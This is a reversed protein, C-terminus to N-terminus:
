LPIVLPYGFKKPYFHAEVGLVVQNANYREDVAVVCSCKSWFVTTHLTTPIVRRFRDVFFFNHQRSVFGQSPVSLRRPVFCSGHM